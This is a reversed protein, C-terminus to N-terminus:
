TKPTKAQSEGDPLPDQKKSEGEDEPSSEQFESMLASLASGFFIEPTVHEDFFEDRSVGYKDAMRKCGGWLLGALADLSMKDPENLDSLSVGSDRAAEMLAPMTISVKWEVGKADTFKPTPNEKQKKSM